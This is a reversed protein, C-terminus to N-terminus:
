EEKRGASAKASQIAQMLYPLDRIANFDFNPEPAGLPAPWQDRSVTM